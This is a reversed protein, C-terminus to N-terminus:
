FSQKTATELTTIANVRVAILQIIKLYWDVESIQTTSAAKSKAL